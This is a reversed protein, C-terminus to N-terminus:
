KISWSYYVDASNQLGSVVEMWLNRLLDLRVTVTNVPEYIGVGYSLFIREGIYGGVSARTRQDSGEIGFQLNGFLGSSQALSSTMALALALSDAQGTRDIPRGSILYAMVEAEPLGPRSYYELRPSSLADLVRVGATVQDETIKRELSADIQPDTPDGVFAINGRMLQLDRAISQLALERLALSGFLELPKGVDQAVRLDGGLRARFLDAEVVFQDAIALELDVVTAFPQRRELAQGSYDVIVADDSVAIGDVGMPELELLADPVEIRGSLEILDPSLVARINEEIGIESRPAFLLSKRSGRLDLELRPKDRWHFKGSMESAGAGVEIRGAVDGSGGLFRFQLEPVELNTPNGLLAFGGDRLNLDGKIVPEDVRGSVDLEGSVLGELRSLADPFAQLSRLDLGSMVLRGRIAADIAAPLQLDISLTERGDRQMVTTLRGREPDGVYSAQLREWDFEATQGGQAYERLRGSPADLAVEVYRPQGAAWAAAMSGSVEGDFSYDEPLFASLSDLGGNLAMRLEGQEGLIARELCARTLGDDWCHESVELQAPGALYRLDVPEDLRWVGLDAALVVPELRGVWDGQEVRGNLSIATTFGGELTLEARHTLPSGAVDLRVSQLATNALRANRAELRLSGDRSGTLSYEAALDLERGQLAGWAYRSLGGQARLVQEQRDWDIRLDLDGRAGELWRDLAQSSLQLWPDAGKPARLAASLGNLEARLDSGAPNWSNDLQLEGEFMAPLSNIEGDLAIATAGLQWGEASRSGSLVARGTLSGSLKDPAGPVTPTPWGNADLDLQWFVREGYSVEGRTRLAQGEPRSLSLADIRLLGASHQATAQLTAAPYGFGSAVAEASITQQTIDGAVSLRWDPELVAGLDPVSDLGPLSDLALLPQADGCSGRARLNFPLAEALADITGDASAAFPGCVEGTFALNDLAGRMALAATGGDLEPWLEPKVLELEARADIQYPHRLEISGILAGNGWARSVLQARSLSLQHGRWRGSFEIREFSQVADGLNASAQLLAGSDIVLTLPLSIDPLGSVTAADGEDEQGANNLTLVPQQLLAESIRVEEGQVQLAGSVAKSRFEGGPWSVLVQGIAVSEGALSIPTQWSAPAGPVSEAQGDPLRVTLSSTHLSDFCVAGRWLCGWDLTLRTEGLVVELEGDEGVWAAQSLKLEGSLSGSAYELELGSARAAADVFTRAGLPSVLWLPVALCLMVAVALPVM